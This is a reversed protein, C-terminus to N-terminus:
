AKQAPSMSYVVQDEFPSWPNVSSNEQDCEIPPPAPGVVLVSSKGRRHVSVAQWEGGRKGTGCPSHESM